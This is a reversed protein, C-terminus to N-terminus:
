LVKCGMNELMPLVESLPSAENLSFLKFRIRDSSEEQPHYLIMSLPTDPGLREMHKIDHVTAQQSSNEEYGSPFANAYTAALELGEEEGYESKLAETINDNWSKSAEKLEFELQQVDIYINESDEVNIQYLTRASISESFFTTFKVDGHGNFHRKLISSFKMRLRTTYLEKPVFVICSFFRGFPDKRVFIRVAPREQMHLIGMSIELLKAESTQFLEDRPYTELIQALVRCDHGNPSLGSLKMVEKVKNKLFPISLPSLNYAAATYLGYLRHEGIVVGRTNFRKIGIYDIYAPRHVNSLTRTKSVTIISTNSLAFKQAPRPLSSLHYKHKTKDKVQKLGLSSEPQPILQYDGKNSKFEYYRYGMFTFNDDGIWKLFALSENFVSKVKPYNSATVEEIVEQLKNRMLQWSAVTIAVDDLVSQLENSILELESPDTQRDIEIYIPIEAIVNKSDHLADLATIKGNKARTFHYSVHIMLHTNLGMKNLSMRISDILFPMDPFLIEVVTHKCQWGNEEISPNLVRMKREETLSENQSFNWLSLISAYLEEASRDILDSESVSNYFHKSFESVLKAQTKSLKKNIIKIVKELLVPSQILSQEAM